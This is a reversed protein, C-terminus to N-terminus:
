SSPQFARRSRSSNASRLQGRAFGTKGLSADSAFFQEPLMEKLRAASPPQGAAWNLLARAAPNMVKPDGDADVAIIGAPSNRILGRLLGADKAIGARASPGRHHRHGDRHRAGRRRTGRWLPSSTVVYYAPSGNQHVGVEQFRTRCGDAFTLAATCSRCPDTRRKCVEYCFKGEPEGFTQRFKENARMVRFNRDVVCATAPCASM